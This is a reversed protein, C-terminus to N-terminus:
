RRGRFAWKTGWLIFSRVNSFTTTHTREGATVVATGTAADLAATRRDFMRLQPNLELQNEGPGGDIVGTPGPTIHRSLFDPGAGGLLTTAAPSAAILFDGGDDGAVTDLGATSIMLDAGNGGSLTDDGYYDLVVDRGGRGSLRDDGRGGDILDGFV